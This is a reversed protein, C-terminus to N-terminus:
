PVSWDELTLGPVHAFDRQNRTVVVLRNALATAAIKLDQTGVRLRMSLLQQFHQECATDFEILKLTHFFRVTRLLSTSYAQVRAASDLRRNLVALRGRLSEEVSIVSVVIDTAAHRALHAHMAAHGHFYLTVHDTDLLYVSV